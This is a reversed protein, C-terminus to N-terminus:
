KKFGGTKITDEFHHIAIEQEHPEVKRDLGDDDEDTPRSDICYQVAASYWEEPRDPFVRVFAARLCDRVTM